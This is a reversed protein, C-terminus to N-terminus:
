KRRRGKAKKNSRSSSAAPESDYLGAGFDFAPAHTNVEVKHSAFRSSCEMWHSMDVVKGDLCVYM